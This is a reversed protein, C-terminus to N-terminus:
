EAGPVEFGKKLRRMLNDLFKQRLQLRYMYAAEEAGNPKKVDIFYLTDGPSDYYVDKPPKGFKYLTVVNGLGEGGVEAANVERDTVFIVHKSDSYWFADIIPSPSKL